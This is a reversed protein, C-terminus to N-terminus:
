QLIGCAGELVMVCSLGKDSCCGSSSRACETTMLDFVTPKATNIQAQLLQTLLTLGHEATDSHHKMLPEARAAKILAALASSGSHTM